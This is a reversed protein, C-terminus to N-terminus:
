DKEARKCFEYVYVVFVVYVCKYIYKTFTPIQQQFFNNIIMFFIKGYIKENSLM